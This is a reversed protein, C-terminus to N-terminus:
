KEGRINTQSYANLLRERQVERTNDLLVEDWRTLLSQRERSSSIAALARAAMGEPSSAKLEQPLSEFAPITRVLSPIRLANAELLVMPFGDWAASHIHLSSEAFKSLADGRPLWGSVEVDNRRFEEIYRDEGGGIWRFTIDSTTRRVAKVVDLFFKPERAPTLRGFGAVVSSCISRAEQLGTTQLDVVNPVHVIKTASIMSAALRAERPSCAAIVTTNRSLIAEAVRYLGRVGASVDAREFAFGHPTYIIPRRKSAVLTARVFAGGFSSHAHVIDPSIEKVAKQIAVRSGRLSSPLERVDAYAVLEGSEAYSEGRIARLLYHEIEPTAAVYQEMATAVGGGYSEVVHLVRRPLSM